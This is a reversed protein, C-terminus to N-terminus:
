EALVYRTLVRMVENIKGTPQPKSWEGVEAFGVRYLEFVVREVAYGSGIVLIRVKERGAEATLESTVATQIDANSLTSSLFAQYQM